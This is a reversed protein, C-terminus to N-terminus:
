RGKIFSVIDDYWGYYEAVYDFLFVLYFAAFGAACWLVLKAFVRLWQKPTIKKTKKM